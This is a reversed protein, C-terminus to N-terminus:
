DDGRSKLGVTLILPLIYSNWSLMTVLIAVISLVPGSLPLIIRILVGLQSCGDILAADEIEKPFARFFPMLIWISLPLGTGAQAVILGLRTNVLGFKLMLLYLPIMVIMFPIMRSVLIGFAIQRRFFFKARTLAYAALTGTTLVLPVTGAVVIVSNLLYKYFQIEEGLITRYNALTPTFLFKYPIAIVDKYSKFSSSILNYLPVCIVIVAGLIILNSIASSIQRKTISKM